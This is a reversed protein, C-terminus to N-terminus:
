VKTRRQALQRDVAAIRRDWEAKKFLYRQYKLEEPTAGARMMSALRRGRMALLESRLQAQEYRLNPRTSRTGDSGGQGYPYDEDWTGDPGGQPDVAALAISTTPSAPYTVASIDDLRAFRTIVRNAYASDWQDVGVVFGCGMQTLDGREIRVLTNMADSDRPDLDAEFNLGASSDSLRLTGSTTRALLRSSDHDVLLRTDTTPLIQTLAGPTIRENFSGFQDTVSYSIPAYVIPTGAVQNITGGKASRISSATRIATDYRRTESSGALQSRYEAKGARQSRHRPKSSRDKTTETM